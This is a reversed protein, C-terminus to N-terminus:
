SPADGFHDNLTEEVISQLGAVVAPIVATVFHRQMDSPRLSIGTDTNAIPTDVPPPTMGATDPTSQLALAHFTQLLEPKLMTWAFAISVVIEETHQQLETAKM